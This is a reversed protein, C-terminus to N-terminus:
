DPADNREMESVVVDYQESALLTLAEDISRVQTVLV